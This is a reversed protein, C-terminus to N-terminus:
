AAGAEVVFEGQDAAQGTGTSYWRWYWRGATAANVDVYYIGTASKIVAADTGYTLTTTSGAPNTYAFYVASPDIATGASNTFTGTVRVLDGKQYCTITM